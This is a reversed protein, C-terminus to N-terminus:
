NLLALIEEYTMDTTIGLKENTTIIYTNYDFDLNRRDLVCVIQSTFIACMSGDNKKIEIIAKM